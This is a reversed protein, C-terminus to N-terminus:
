KKRGRRRNRGKLEYMVTIVQDSDIDAVVIKKGLKYRMAGDRVSVDTNESTMVREIDSRDIGRERSRKRAHLTMNDM